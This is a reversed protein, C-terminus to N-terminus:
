LLAEIGSGGPIIHPLRGLQPDIALGRRPVKTEVIINLELPFDGVCGYCAFPV